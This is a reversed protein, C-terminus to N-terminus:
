KETSCKRLNWDRVTIGGFGQEFGVDFGAVLSWGIEDAVNARFSEKGLRFEGSM